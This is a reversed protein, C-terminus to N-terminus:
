CRAPPKCAPSTHGAGAVAIEFPLYSFRDLMEKAERSVIRIEEESLRAISDANFNQMAHDDRGIVTKSNFRIGAQSRLSEPDIDLFAAIRAAVGAYDEVLEEYRVELFNDIRGADEMMIRNVLNWHRAGRDVPKNGKRKIGEAVAYGNRVLGIFYSRPFAKQLWTMRVANAPTKEVIIERVPTDLEGLWDHVVRDVCDLPDRDTLRLESLYETWVREHGRRMSRALARTYVQGELAMTSVQGSRALLEQLLSTGSNNCGVIFCWKHAALIESRYRGFFRKGGGLHWEAAREADRLGRQLGTGLRMGRQKWRTLDM